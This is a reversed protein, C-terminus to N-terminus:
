LLSKSRKSFIMFLLLTIWTIEVERDLFNILLVDFKNRLKCSRGLENLISVSNLLPNQFIVQIGCVHHLSILMECINQFFFNDM